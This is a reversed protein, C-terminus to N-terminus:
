RLKFRVRPDDSVLWLGSAGGPIAPAFRGDHEGDISSNRADASADAAIEGRYDTGLDDELWLKPFGPWAAADAGVVEDEM